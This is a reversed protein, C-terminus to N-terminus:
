LKYEVRIIHVIPNFEKAQVCVCEFELPRLWESLLLSLILDVCNIFTMWNWLSESIRFFFFVATIRNIWLQYQDQNIATRNIILLSITMVFLYASKSGNMNFHIPILYELQNLIQYKYCLWHPDGYGFNLISTGFLAWLETIWWVFYYYSVYIFDFRSGFQVNSFTVRSFSLCFCFNHKWCTWQDANQKHQNMNTNTKYCKAHSKTKCMTYSAGVNAKNHIFM